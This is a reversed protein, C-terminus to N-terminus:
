SVILLETDVKGNMGLCINDMLDGEIITIKSSM